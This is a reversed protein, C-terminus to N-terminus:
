NDKDSGNKEDRVGERCVRDVESAPILRRRGVKVTKVLGRSAWTRWSWHTTSSQRAAEEFSLLQQAM